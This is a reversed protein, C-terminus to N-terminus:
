PRSLRAKPITVGLVLTPASHQSGAINTAVPNAFTLRLRNREPDYRLAMLDARVTMLVRGRGDIQEYTVWTFVEGQFGKVTLHVDGVTVGLDRRLRALLEEYYDLVCDGTAAQHLVSGSLDARSPALPLLVVLVAIWSKHPM